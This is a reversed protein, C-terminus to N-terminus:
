RQEGELVSMTIADVWAGDWRLADRRRGEVVFGCKEYARQARPNFAYVELEVRHLALAGFAQELVLRIAATGYGRGYVDPGRLGIRLGASRNDLDIENLVIEGLFQGDEVIAWDHRGTASPRSALWERARERTFTAHTGTLRKGEPECLYDFYPDLFSEDLVVLSVTM